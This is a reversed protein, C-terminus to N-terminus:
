RRQTRRQHKSLPQAWRRASPPSTACSCSISSAVRSRRKRGVVVLDVQEHEALAVLAPLDSASVRVLRAIDAIGPNGPAAILEIPTNERSLADAIAHERGGGGVILIKM